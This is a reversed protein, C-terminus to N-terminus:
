ASLYHSGVYREARCPMVTSSIVPRLAETSSRTSISRDPPSSRRDVTLDLRLTQPIASARSPSLRIYAHNEAVSVFHKAAAEAAIIM